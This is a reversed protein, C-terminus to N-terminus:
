PPSAKKFQMPRAKKFEVPRAKKFELQFQEPLGASRETPM